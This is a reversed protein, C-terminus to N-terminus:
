TIWMIRVKLPLSFGFWPKGSFPLDARLGTDSQPTDTKSELTIQYGSTTGDDLPINAPVIFLNRVAQLARVGQATRTPIDKQALSEVIVFVILTREDTKYGGGKQSWSGAGPWTFAYPCLADDMATPYHEMDAPVNALYTPQLTALKAQILNCALEIDVAM